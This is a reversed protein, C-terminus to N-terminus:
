VSLIRMSIFGHEALKNLYKDFKSVPFGNHAVYGYTYPAGFIKHLIDADHHYTEYFKGCHVLIITSPNEKKISLWKKKMTSSGWTELNDFFNHMHNGIVSKARAWRKYIKGCTDLFSNFSDEERLVDDLVSKVEPNNLLHSKYDELQAESWRHNIVNSKEIAIQVANKLTVSM